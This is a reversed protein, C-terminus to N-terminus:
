CAIVATSLTSPLAHCSATAVSLRYAMKESSNVATIRVRIYTLQFSLPGFFFGSLSSTVSVSVLFPLFFPSSLPFLLPNPSAAGSWIGWQEVV